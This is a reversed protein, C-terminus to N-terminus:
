SHHPRIQYLTSPEGAPHQQLSNTTDLNKPRILCGVTSLNYSGSLLGWAKQQAPPRLWESLPLFFLYEYTVAPVVALNMPLAM